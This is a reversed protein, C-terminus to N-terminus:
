KTPQQMTDTDAKIEQVLLDISDIKKSLTDLTNKLEELQTKPLTVEVPQLKIDLKEANTKPTTESFVVWIYIYSLFAIIVLFWVAHKVRWAFRFNCPNKIFSWLSEFFIKLLSSITYGEVNSGFETYHNMKWSVTKKNIEEEMEQLRKRTQQGYRDMPIYIALFWFLLPILAISVIIKISFIDSKSVFALIVGSLVAMYQFIQWIARYINEYRQAAQEYELKFLDFTREWEEKNSCNNNQSTEDSM